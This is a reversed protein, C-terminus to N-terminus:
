REFRIDDLYFVVRKPDRETAELDGWTASWFFGGIVHSLDAGRLDITYQRWETSLGYQSPLAPSVFSDTCQPSTIGGVGFQISVPTDSRAWFTVKTFNSLSFGHKDCNEEPNEPRDQWRVGAWTCPGSCGTQPKMGLTHYIVRIATPTSYPNIAWNSKIDIDGIDGMYGSPTFHNDAADANTYINFYSGIIPTITATPTAAIPTPTFNSINSPKLLWTLAISASSLLLLGILLNPTRKAAIKRCSTYTIKLDGAITRLEKNCPRTEGACTILENLRGDAEAIMILNLAQTQLNDASSVRSLAEPYCYWIMNRLLTETFYASCLAEHLRKRQNASLLASSHISSM